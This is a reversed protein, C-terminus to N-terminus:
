AKVDLFSETVPVYSKESQIDGEAAILFGAYISMDTMFFSHWEGSM